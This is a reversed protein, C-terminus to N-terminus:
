RRLLEGSSATGSFIETLSHWCNIYRESGIVALRKGEHMTRSPLLMTHGTM